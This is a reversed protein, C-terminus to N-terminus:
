KELAARLADRLSEPSFPKQLFGFPHQSAFRPKMDQSSYGSFVVVRLGPRRQRLRTLTEAGDMGPMMADLLVLTIPRGADVLELAAAGSGAEVVEFGFQEVMQAATRRVAEEDDVVLVMGSGRWPAPVAVAAPALREPAAREPPFALTFTTGRGPVSHVHLAGGHSRVIGLVSALGLGRGTPKTTFFPDFIRALVAPEMGPGDDAVILCVRPGPASDQGVRAGALWTADVLQTLTRVNITGRRDGIAQAANLVLNLVIQRLQAADAHVAPLGPELALDLHTNEGLSVKLLATTEGVTASLDVSGSDMHGGGSFVLLQRCLAAATQSAQEIRDLHVLAREKPDLALRALAANGLIATLLNNFDHAVGGALVGLSELKQTDLLRRELEARERQAQIQMSVDVAIGTVGTVMGEPDRVPAVQIEFTSGLREHRAAVAEGALARRLQALMAPEDAYLTFFDKGVSEGPKRGIARLGAGESLTVTGHRDLAFLIVPAGRLVTQLHAQQERIRAEALRLESVDTIQALYYLPDGRDDRIVAIHTVATLTSGDKRVYRKEIAVPVAPAQRLREGFARTAALDDPHTLEFITKQRMEERTYGLLRCASTNAERIRGDLGAVTIGGPAHDFVLQLMTSQERLVRESAARRALDARTSALLGAGIAVSGILIGVPILALLRAHGIADTWRASEFDVGIVAEVRGASDLLPEFASVWTGWRDSYPEHRFARRGEFAQALEPIAQVYPEGPATRQEREGEIRGNHDYDTESDVVLVTRGDATRRFTYIDAIFPNIQLWRRQLQVLELYLPNDPQLTALDLRAHGLRQFEEAYTPLLRTIEERHRARARREASETWFWGGVLLAAVTLWTLRPFAKWAGTRRLWVALGGFLALTLFLLALFDLPAASAVPM